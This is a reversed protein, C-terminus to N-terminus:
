YFLLLLALAFAIILPARIGISPVYAGVTGAIASALVGIVATVWAEKLGGIALALVWCIVVITSIEVFSVFGKYTKEHAIEDMAPSYRKAATRNDITM